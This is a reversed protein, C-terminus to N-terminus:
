QPLLKEDQIFQALERAILAHGQVSPHGDNPIYLPSDSRKSADGFAASLDFFRFGYQSALRALISPAPMSKTPIYVILLEASLDKTTRAMEGLLYDLAAEQREIDADGRQASWATIRGVAVDVEHKIGALLDLGDREARRQNQIRRVGNGQPPAIYPKGSWDWAVYSYDLCFPYYAPACPRINRRPQDNNFAYVVLRPKLDRNRRLMQLAHTTGYSGLGLNVGAVHLASAARSGFTDPNEVGHGWTFSDGVMMLDAHGATQEGPHSVRAGRGDTYLHYELAPKRGPGPHTIKTVSNPRPVFGIEADYVIAPDGEAQVGSPPIARYGAMAIWMAIAGAVTICAVFTGGIVTGRM